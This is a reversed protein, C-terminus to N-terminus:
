IKTPVHWFIRGRSPLFNTPAVGLFEDAFNDFNRRRPVLFNTPACLVKRRRRQLIARAHGMCYEALMSRLTERRSWSAGRALARADCFAGARSLWDSVFAISCRLFHRSQHYNPCNKQKCMQQLM